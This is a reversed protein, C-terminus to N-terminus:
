VGGGGDNSLLVNLFPRHHHGINWLMRFQTPLGRAPPLSRPRRFGLRRSDASAATNTHPWNAPRCGRSREPRLSSPAPGSYAWLRSAAHSRTNATAQPQRAWNGHRGCLADALVGAM